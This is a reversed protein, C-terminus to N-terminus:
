AEVTPDAVEDDHASLQRRLRDLATALADSLVGDEHNAEPYAGMGRSRGAAIVVGGREDWPGGPDPRPELLRGMCGLRDALVATAINPQESPLPAATALLRPEGEAHRHCQQALEHERGVAALGAIVADMVLDVGIGNNRQRESERVALSALRGAAWGPVLYGFTLRAGHENV